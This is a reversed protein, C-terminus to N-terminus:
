VYLEVFKGWRQIVPQVLEEWEKGEYKGKQWRKFEFIEKHKSGCDPCAAAVANSNVGDAPAPPTDIHPWEPALYVRNCALDALELHILRELRHCWPGKEGGKVRGKRLSGENGDEDPEVTNPYFGRLVQEKSGCQKSWQDMRKVLNVARGVKLKINKRDTPDRIEFTYIYGDVDSRSPPKDMEDRLSLQTEPQLYAPIWDEFSVWRDTLGVKRSNFGTAILAGKSHQHCYLAIAPSDGDDSDFPSLARPTKVMRSCPKDALTRGACQRYGPKLAPSGGPSAPTTPTSTLKAKRVPTSPTSAPKKRAPTSLTSSTASISPRVQPAPLPNSHPRATSVGSPPPRLAHQMTLSQPADFPTPMAIPQYAGDLGATPYRPTNSGSTSSGQAYARPDVAYAPNFGGVFGLSGQNPSISLGNFGPILDDTKPPPKPPADDSKKDPSDFFKRQFRKAEAKLMNVAESM